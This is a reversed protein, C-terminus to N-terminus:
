AEIRDFHQKQEVLAKKVHRKFKFKARLDRSTFVDPAEEYESETEELPVVDDYLARLEFEPREGGSLVAKYGRMGFQRKQLTPEGDDEIVM